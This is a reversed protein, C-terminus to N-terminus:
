QITPNTEEIMEEIDEIVTELTAYPYMKGPENNPPYVQFDARGTSVGTYVFVPVIEFGKYNEPKM